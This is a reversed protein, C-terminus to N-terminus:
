PKTRPWRARCGEPEVAFGSTLAGPTSMRDAEGPSPKTVSDPVLM